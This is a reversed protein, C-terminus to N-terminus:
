RGQQIILDLQISYKPLIVLMYLNYISIIKFTKCIQELINYHSAHSCKFHFIQLYNSLYIKMFCSPWSRELGSGDNWQLDLSIFFILILDASIFIWNLMLFKVGPWIKLDTHWFVLFNTFHYWFKLLLDSLIM